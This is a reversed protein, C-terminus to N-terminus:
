ISHIEQYISHIEQYISHIEQYISHIEQYIATYRNIYVTYKKIYPQTNRSIYQTNRSIFVTYKKIYLIYKKIYPWSYKQIYLQINIHSYIQIATYKPMGRGVTHSKVTELTKWDRLYTYSNEVTRLEISLNM